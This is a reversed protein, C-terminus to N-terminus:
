HELTLRDRGGEVGLVQQIPQVSQAGLVYPQRQVVGGLRHQHGTLVGEFTRVVCVIESVQQYRDAEGALEGVALRLFSCEICMPITPRPRIPALIRSRNRVAPISTVPNSRSSDILSTRSRGASTCRSGAAGRTTHTITGAPAIVSVTTLSSPSNSLEPSTMMSPPLVLKWSSM